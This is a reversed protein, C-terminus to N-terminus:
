DDTADRADKDHQGYGEAEEHVGAEQEERGEHPEVEELRANGVEARKFADQPFRTHESTRGLATGSARNGCRLAQYRDSNM